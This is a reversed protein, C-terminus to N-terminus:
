TTGKEIRKLADQFSDKSAHTYIKATVKIDSHGMLRSAVVLPVGADQLDTCYTHRYCYPTLDDPLSPNVLANRFVKTGQEIEMDRKFRHWLSRISTHTLREGHTNTCIYGKTDPIMEALVSPLPVDRTGAKSKPKGITDDSKLAKTVHLTKNKFDFDQRTLVAVEQPRLGCYLMILFFLGDNPHKRATRITLKREYETIPRRETQEVYSPAKIRKVPSRLILDNDEATEFIQRLILLTKKVYSESMDSVDNLVRVIDMPKVHRILKHGIIPDIANEIISEMQHYWRESVVGDKYTLLWTKCWQGVTQDGKTERVGAVLLAKKIKAKEKAEAKTHGYVSYRKGDHTFAVQFLKYRTSM